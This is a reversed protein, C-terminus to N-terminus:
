LRKRDFANPIGLEERYKAVTRRSLRYGRQAMLVALKQDSLPAEPPDREILQRLLAHAAVAGLDGAEGGPAGRSFFYSIPYLGRGCQLYKAHVARSITSVHLELTEAADAMRLPHMAPEGHNFFDQQRETIFQACRLLTSQRQEVAWQVSKAQQLKSLLYKKAEPELDQELLHLYYRNLTFLPRNTQPLRAEFRGNVKEVYIDPQVYQIASPQQFALGPYPNLRQLMSRATEVASASIGLKAAVVQNNKKALLDLHSRAIDLAPGNYGIRQLQLVLCDSLNAAGVGPPDLSRLVAIASALQTQPIQLEQALEPLAITLYGTEDLCAALYEAVAKELNSLPLARIQRVLFSVLTDSFGGDTGVQLLPDGPEELPQWYYRNQFDNEELWRLQRIYEVEDTQRGPAGYDMDIIPNEVALECLYRELEAVNMGLLAVGQLQKQSLFQKQNLQLEM